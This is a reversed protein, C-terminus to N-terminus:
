YIRIIYLTTVVEPYFYATITVIDVMISLTKTGIELLFLKKGLYEALKRDDKSDRIKQYEKEWSVPYEFKKIMKVKGGEGYARGIGTGITFALIRRGGFRGIREGLFVRADNDIRLVVKPFIERFDFNKLYRINPSKIVRTGSIVGAVGIGVADARPLKELIKAFEKTVLDPRTSLFEGAKVFMGGLKELAKVIREEYGRRLKEKGRFRHMLRSFIPVVSHIELEYVITELGEELLVGVIHSLRGVEKIEEKISM